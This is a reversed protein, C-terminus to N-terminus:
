ETEMKSDTVKVLEKLKLHPEKILSINKQVEMRNKEKMLLSNGKMRNLYFQHERKKRIEEVRKMTDVTTKVLDRDYRVPINRRKEFEYTTDITM